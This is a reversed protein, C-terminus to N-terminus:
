KASPTSPTNVSKGSVAERKRDQDFTRGVKFGAAGWGLCVAIGFAAVAAIPVAFQAFGANIWASVVDGFRYVTVDIFNKAKYKEEEGVATFLLDRIPKIVAFDSARHAVQLVVLALLTPEIAFNLMLAAVLLPCALLLWRTGFWRILLGTGVFQLLFTALNTYFDREAFLATRVSSDTSAAEVLRTQQFYLITSVEVYLFVLLAILLLYRSRFVARVGGWLDGGIASAGHVPSHAPSLSKLALMALLALALLAISVVLLGRQDFLKLTVQNLLPGALAGLTGGAAIPAFLKAAEERSFVEALFSWFVSVVFLNFVSLFIFFAPVIAGVWGGARTLYWFGLLCLLSAVIVGPLFVHRPYRSVLWAFLPATLLTALFTGTFLLHLRPAGGFLVGMEDRLPRLVYYAALLFFFYGTALAARQLDRRNM